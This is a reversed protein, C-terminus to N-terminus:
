ILINEYPVCARTLASTELTTSILHVNLWCYCCRCCFCYCFHFLAIPRFRLALTLKVYDMEWARVSDCFLVWFSAIGDTFQTSKTMCNFQLQVLLLIFLVFLWDCNIRCCCFLCLGFFHRFFVWVFLSRRLRIAYFWWQCFPITDRRSFGLRVLVVCVCSCSCPCTFDSASGHKIGYFNITHCQRHCRRCSHGM